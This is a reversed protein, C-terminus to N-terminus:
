ETDSGGHIDYDLLLRSTSERHLGAGIIRLIEGLKFAIVTESTSSLSQAGGSNNNNDIGGNGKNGNGKNGDTANISSAHLRNANLIAVPLPNTEFEFDVSHDIGQTNCAVCARQKSVISLFLIWENSAQLQNSRYGSTARNCRRSNHLQKPILDMGGPLINRTSYQNCTARQRMEVEECYQGLM